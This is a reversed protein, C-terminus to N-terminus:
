FKFNGRMRQNVQVGKGKPPPGSKKARSLPSSQRPKRFIPTSDMATIGPSLFGTALVSVGGGVSGSGGLTAGGAVTVASAAALSGNVIGPLVRQTTM